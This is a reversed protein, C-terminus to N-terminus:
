IFWNMWNVLWRKLIKQKMGPRGISTRGALWSIDTESERCNARCTSGWPRRFQAAFVLTSHLQHNAPPPCPTHSTVLQLRHNAAIATTAPEQGASEMRKKELTMHCKREWYAMIKWFWSTKSARWEMYSMDDWIRMEPDIPTIVFISMMSWPVSAAVM